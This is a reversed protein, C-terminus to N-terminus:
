ALAPLEEKLSSSNTSYLDQRLDFAQSIFKAVLRITDGEANVLYIFQNVSSLSKINDSTNAWIILDRTLSFTPCSLLFHCEDEVINAPQCRPCFRQERPILPVAYRGTEVLLKHNSIRLKTLAQRHKFTRIDVLYTEATFTTKYKRYLSLKGGDPNNPNVLLHQQWYSVYKTKLNNIFSKTQSGRSPIAVGLEISLKSIFSFWSNSGQSNLKISESTAEALLTNGNDSIAHSWFNLISAVAELGLPFRGLEGMVAANTARKTVGLVSKCFSIQVKEIPLSYYEKEFGNIRQFKKYNLNEIGWIEAGYLCIPKILQDFLKLALSPSINSDRICSKLKFLAKLARDHINQRARNMSGSSCFVIGLYKYDQVCQIQSNNFFFINTCIRGSKSFKIVKTKDLNVELRWQSCYTSLKSISNQLGEPSLSFIVLDDAYLLSNIATSGLTPATPDGSLYVPIDNIFLNFLNPSLVDGQKVGVNCPIFDTRQQGVKLCVMDNSYMDEIINFLKGRINAKLLKCLLAQRWVSDFAKRFDVFCAYLPSGKHTYKDLLTRIIFMHDSTRALKRFGIQHPTILNHELIYKDLRDNLVMCFVKALSSNVTIGRYNNPDHAPGGKHINVMYGTNWATPYTGQDFIRNFLHTYLPTMSPISAQLLTSDVRDLGPSKGAKLSGIKNTIENASIRFDTDAFFPEAKLKSITEALHPDISPPVHLLNKYHSLLDESPVGPVSSNSDKDINRLDEVLKWYEKPNNCAMSDLSTVLQNRYQRSKRKLLTKYEKRKTFFLGRTHPNKPNKTLNRGLSNLLRRVSHCDSDFWKKHRHNWLKTSAQRVSKPKPSNTATDAASVLLKTVRDTLSDIDTDSTKNLTLSLVDPDYTSYALESKFQTISSETWKYRSPLTHLETSEVQTPFPLHLGLSIICHDSLDSLCDHVKFFRIMPLLSHHAIGYDVQSSGNWKHCTLKGSLDGLTRGNLIRLGASKCLNILLDTYEKPRCINDRNHRDTIPIVDDPIYSDPVPTFNDDDNQIYDPISGTRTNFDGVLIVKGMNQFKDIDLSLTDWVSSDHKLTYSSNVPSVYVVGIFIDDPCRFFQKKLQLWILDPSKSQHLAVGKRINHKVLIAVGGSGKRAKPHKCRIGEFPDCFGDVQFSKGKVVHTESLTIIDFDNVEKLFDSDTSKSGTRSQIGEINWHCLRLFHETPIPGSSNGGRCRDRGNCQAHKAICM